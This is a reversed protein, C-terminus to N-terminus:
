YQIGYPIVKDIDCHRQKNFPTPDIIDADNGTSM